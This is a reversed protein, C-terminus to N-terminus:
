VLFLDVFVYMYKYRIVFKYFNNVVKYFRHINLIYRFLKSALDLILVVILQYIEMM